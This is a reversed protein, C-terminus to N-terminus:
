YNNIAIEGHFHPKSLKHYSCSSLCRDLGEHEWLNGPIVPDLRLSTWSKQPTHQFIRPFANSCTVVMQHPYKDCFDHITFMREHCFSEVRGLKNWSASPFSSRSDKYKVTLFFCQRGSFFFMSCPNQKKEPQLFDLPLWIGFDKSSYFTWNHHNAPFSLAVGM